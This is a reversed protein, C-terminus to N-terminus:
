QGMNGAQALLDDWNDELVDEALQGEEVPESTVALIDNDKVWGMRSWEGVCLVARTSEASLRNRVHPLVLRGRSFIREVRVSAALAFILSPFNTIYFFNVNGPATLYSLAMIYLHPFTHRNDIWWELVEEDDLEVCKAALYVTLEDGHAVMPKRSLSSRSINAFPNSQLFSM